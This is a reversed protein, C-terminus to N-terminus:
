PGGRGRSGYFLAQVISERMRPVAAAAAVESGVASVVVSGGVASGVASGVLSGVASGVVVLAGVVDVVVVVNGLSVLAAGVNSGVAPGM